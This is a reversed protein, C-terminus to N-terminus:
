SAVERGLTALVSKLREVQPELDQFTAEAGDWEGARALRELKLATELAPKAAFSGLVGKLSHAALELAKCDRAALAKRIEDIMRPCDAKFLDFLEKILQTDGQVRALLEVQDLIESAPLDGIAGRMSNPAGMVLSEITEFLEKPQIPKAVYSDMGAALCRERDGKMAHATMALIPLRTGTTKERERIAAAAEFGDMEAMQVDMLVLDFGIFSTKELLALAERGNGAVKVTHGRRELLRVALLQNVVNDEALLIRLHRRSERISHRTVLPSKGVGPTRSGLATMISDM